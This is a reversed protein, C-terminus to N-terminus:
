LGSIFAEPKQKQGKFWRRWGRRLPESTEERGPFALSGRQSEERLVRFFDQLSSNSHNFEPHSRQAEIMGEMESMNTGTGTCLSLRYVVGITAELDTLVELAGKSSVLPRDKEFKGKLRRDWKTRNHLAQAAESDRAKTELMQKIAQIVRDTQLHFDATTQQIFTALEEPDISKSWSACLQQIHELHGYILRALCHVKKQFEEQENSRIVAKATLLKKLYDLAHPVDKCFDKTNRHVSIQM